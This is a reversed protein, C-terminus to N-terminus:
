FTANRMHNKIQVIERELIRTRYDYHLKVINLCQALKEKM